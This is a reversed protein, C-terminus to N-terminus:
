KIKYFSKELIEPGYMTISRILRNNSREIDPIGDKATSHIQERLLHLKKVDYNMKYRSHKEFQNFPLHTKALWSPFDFDIDLEYKSKEIVDKDSKFVNERGKCKAKKRVFFKWLLLLM